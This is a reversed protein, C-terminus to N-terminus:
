DTAINHRSATNATCEQIIMYAWQAKSSMFCLTHPFMKNMNDKGCLNYLPPDELNTDETDYGGVFEPFTLNGDLVTRAVALLLQGTLSYLVDNCGKMNIGVPQLTILTM